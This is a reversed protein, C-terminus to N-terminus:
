ESATSHPLPLRPLLPPPPPLHRPTFISDPGGRPAKDEAEQQFLTHEVQEEEDTRKRM